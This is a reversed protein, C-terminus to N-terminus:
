YNRIPLTGSLFAATIAERHAQFYEHDRVREPDFMMPPALPDSFRVGPVISGTSTTLVFGTKPDM